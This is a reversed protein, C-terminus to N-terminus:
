HGAGEPVLREDFNLWFTDEKRKARGNIWLFAYPTEFVENFIAWTAKIGFAGSNEEVIAETEKQNRLRFVFWDTANTRVINDLVRAKQVSALTSIGYHRGRVFLEILARSHTAARNDAVDDLIVLVGFLRKMGRRKALQTIKAHRDVIAQLKSEQFEDFFLEDQQDPPVKLTHTAYDKVPGWASDVHVTPSFIYVREWCGRYLDLVMSVLLTTKGAGSPGCLMGRMPLQPLHAHRSQKYTYEKTKHVQVSM